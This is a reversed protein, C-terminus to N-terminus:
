RPPKTRKFMPGEKLAMGMAAKYVLVGLVRLSLAGIMVDSGDARHLRTM